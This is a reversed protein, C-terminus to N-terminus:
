SKVTEGLKLQCFFHIKNHDYIVLKQRKVLDDASSSTWRKKARLKRLWYRMAHFNHVENQSIKTFTIRNPASEIVRPRYCKELNASLKIIVRKEPSNSRHTCVRLFVRDDCDIEINIVLMHGKSFHAVAAAIVIRAWLNPLPQYNDCSRCLIHM